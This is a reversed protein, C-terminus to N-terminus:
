SMQTDADNSRGNGSEDTGELRNLADDFAAEILEYTELQARLRDIEFAIEHQTM